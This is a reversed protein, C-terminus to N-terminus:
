KYGFKKKFTAINKNLSTSDGWLIWRSLAGATMPDNWNENKRHRDLYRQRQAKDKTKTYDDMGASGFHITKVKKKDKDYFVAQLKKEKLGSKTITVWPM